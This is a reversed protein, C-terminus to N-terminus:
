LLFWTVNSAYAYGMQHTLGCSYTKQLNQNRHFKCDQYYACQVELYSLQNEYEEKTFYLKPNFSNLLDYVGGIDGPDDFALFLDDTYRYITVSVNTNFLM